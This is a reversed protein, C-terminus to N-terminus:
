RWRYSGNLKRETTIQGNEFVGSVAGTAWVDTGATVPYSGTVTYVERGKGRIKMPVARDIQQGGDLDLCFTEGNGTWTLSCDATNPRPYAVFAADADALYYNATEIHELSPMTHVKGILRGMGHTKMYDGHGFVTDTKLFNLPDHQREYAFVTHGATVFGKTGDKRRLVPLRSLVAITCVTATLTNHCYLMVGGDCIKREPSHYCSEYPPEPYAM